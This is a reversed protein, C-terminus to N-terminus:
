HPLLTQESESSLSKSLSFSSSDGKGPAARGGCLSRFADFYCRVCEKMHSLALTVLVCIRSHTVAGVLGGEAPREKKEDAYYSNNRRSSRRKDDARRRRTTPRSLPTFKASPPPPPARSFLLRLPRPADKLRRLLDHFGSVDLDVVYEAGDESDGTALAVLEDGPRLKGHAVGGGKNANTSDVVVLRRGNDGVQSLVLSIGLQREPFSIWMAPTDKKQMNLGTDVSVSRQPPSQCMAVTATTTTTTAEFKSSWALKKKQIYAQSSYKSQIVDCLCIKRHHPGHRPTYM